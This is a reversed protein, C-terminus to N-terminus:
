RYGYALAWGVKEGRSAASKSSITVVAVYAGTKKPTVRVGGMGKVRKIKEVAVSNGDADYVNVKVTSNEDSSGAWFWYENGKFLQFKVPTKEGSSIEGSWREARLKFGKKLYPAAVEMSFARADQEEPSLAYSMGTAFVMLIAAAATLRLSRTRSKLKLILAM